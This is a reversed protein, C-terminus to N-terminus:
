DLLKSPPRDMKPRARETLRPHLSLPIKHKGYSFSEQGVVVTRKGHINVQGM